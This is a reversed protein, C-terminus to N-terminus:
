EVFKGACCQRAELQRSVNEKLIKLIEHEM